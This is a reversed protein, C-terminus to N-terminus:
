RDSDNGLCMAALAKRQEGIFGVFARIRLAVFRRDLYCIWVPIDFPRYPRLVEVLDGRALAKAALFGPMQSIGLGAIASQVIADSDNVVLTGTAAYQQNSGNIAFTWPYFRGTARNRFNLCNHQQLQEPHQPESQQTLYAPAACVVMPYTTLRSAILNASDSLSGTRIAVDVGQAALDVARDDVSVELTLDPFAQLFAGLIPVLCVRGFADPVSLTLQGRPALQHNGQIESELLELDILLQKCGEYFRTGDPTLSISRTTRHFLKVGLDAELRGVAKSVASTSLGLANSAGVFSQVEAVRVFAQINSLSKM